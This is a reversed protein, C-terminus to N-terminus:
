AVAKQLLSYRRFFLLLFCAFLWVLPLRGLGTEADGENNDNQATTLEGELEDSSSDAAETINVMFQLQRRDDETGLEVNVEALGLATEPSSLRIIFVLITDRQIGDNITVASLLDSTDSSVKANFDSLMLDEDFLEVYVVVAQNVRGAAIDVDDIASVSFGADVPKLEDDNIDFQYEVAGMDISGGSIRLSQRQDLVPNVPYDDILALLQNDGANIVPSASRPLQTLLGIADNDALPNLQPDLDVLNNDAEELVAYQNTGAVFGLDTENLSSLLNHSFQDIYSGLGIDIDLGAVGTTIGQWQQLNTDFSARLQNNAIVSNVLSLKIRETTENLSNDATPADGVIDIFNPNDLGIADGLSLQTTVSTAVGGGGSSLINKNDTITSNVVLAHLTSLANAPVAADTIGEDVAKAEATFQIPTDQNASLFDFLADTQLFGDSFTYSVGNFTALMQAPADDDFGIVVFKSGQNITAYVNIVAQGDVIVPPNLSGVAVGDTQSPTIFGVGLPGV